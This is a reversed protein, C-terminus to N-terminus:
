GRREQIREMIAIEERQAQIIQDCLELIEPDKLEAEQCMHIARSHHPIMSGLFADDGVGAETRSAGVGSALIAAFVVALLINLRKDTLMNGMTALMILAMAAIMTMSIWFISLSWTAHAFKDIQSYALVYMVVWSAALSTGYRIYARKSERDM